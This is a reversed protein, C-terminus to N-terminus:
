LNRLTQADWFPAGNNNLDAVTWSQFGAGASGLITQGYSASCMTFVAMATLLFFSM